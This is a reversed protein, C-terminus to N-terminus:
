NIGAVEAAIKHVVGKPMNSYFTTHFLIFLEFVPGFIYVSCYYLFMGKSPEPHGSDHFVDNVLM